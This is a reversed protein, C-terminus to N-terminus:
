SGNEKNKAEARLAELEALLAERDEDKKKDYQRRRILDYAIFACLPIFISVILGPVTQMFLAIYAVFPIRM